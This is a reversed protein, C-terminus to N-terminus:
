VPFRRDRDEVFSRVSLGKMEQKKTEIVQNFFGQVTMEEPLKGDAFDQYISDKLKDENKLVVIM